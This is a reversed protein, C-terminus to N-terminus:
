KGGRKKGAIMNLMRNTVAFGGVVNIMALVIAIFALLGSLETSGGEYLINSGILAGIISIGSIANAGSMLPTHLTAPVKTILEFGLFIALVFLTINAILFEPTM